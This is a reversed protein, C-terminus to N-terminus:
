QSYLSYNAPLHVTEELAAANVREAADFREAEVEKDKKDKM